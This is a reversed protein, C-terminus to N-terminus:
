RRRRRSRQYRVPHAHPRGCSPETGTSGVPSDTSAGAAGTSLWTRGGIRAPPIGRFIARALLGYGNLALMREPLWPLQFFFVYWSRRLQALSRLGARSLAPHPANLITLSRVAEPRQMALLWAVMGGWDHGVIHASREGLAELLGLVDAQLTTGDYPPRADTEHYGRLDPAVVRYGEGLVPLQNRWSYWCEPFGHLLLVLEGKGAEVYHM